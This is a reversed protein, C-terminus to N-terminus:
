TSLISTHRTHTHTHIYRYRRKYTTYSDTDGIYRFGVSCIMYARARACVCMCVSVCVCVTGHARACLARACVCVCVCVCLVVLRGSAAFGGCTVPDLHGKFVHLCTGVFEQAGTRASSHSIEWMMTCGDEGGALIV